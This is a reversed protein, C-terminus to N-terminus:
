INLLISAVECHLRVREHSLSFTSFVQQVLSHLYEGFDIKALDPSRYLKEH